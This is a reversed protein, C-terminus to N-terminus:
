KETERHVKELNFAPLCVSVYTVPEDFPNAYQVRTNKEIKISEGERLVIVEDNITFQKKGSIVLTYEDFEPTQFPEKWHPPAVMYAISLRSDGNSAWGAHEAILKGDTTPVIFPKKQIQYGM